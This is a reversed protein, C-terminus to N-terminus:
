INQFCRMESSFRLNLTQLAILKDKFVPEMMQSSFAFAPEGHILDYPKYLSM